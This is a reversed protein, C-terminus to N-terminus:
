RMHHLQPLGHHGGKLNALNTEYLRTLSAHIRLNTKYIYIYIYIYINLTMCGVKSQDLPGLHVVTCRAM